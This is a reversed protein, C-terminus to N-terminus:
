FDLSKSVDQLPEERGLALIMSAVEGPTSPSPQASFYSCALCDKASPRELPNYTLMKDLLEVAGHVHRCSAKFHQTKLDEERQNEDKSKVFEPSLFNHPLLTIGPWTEEDIKGRCRVITDIQNIERDGAMYPARLVLEAFICGISWVDVASGYNKSGLLLEPPRYWLTVSTPTMQAERDGFLRALGFDTVKLVGRSDLLLNNPKLDRHIVWREHMYQTASLMQAMFSKIHAATLNCSQNKIVDELDILCLELVLVVEGRSPFCEWLKIINPHDMEGLIKIERLATFHVGDEDGTAARKLRIKKLAVVSGAALPERVINSLHSTQTAGKVDRVKAPPPDGRLTARYVDGYTGHGIKNWDAYASSRNGGDGSSVSRTSGGGVAAAAAAAAM